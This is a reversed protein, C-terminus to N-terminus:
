NGIGVTPQYTVIVDVFRRSNTGGTDGWLYQGNVPPTGFDKAPQPVIEIRSYNNDATKVYVIESSGDHTASTIDYYNRTASVQSSFDANLSHMALGGKIIVGSTSFRTERTSGTIMSGTVTPAILSISPLPLTNDTALVMDVSTAAAANGVSMTMPTPGLVLGSFHGGTLDATEYVRLVASGVAPKWAISTLSGPASSKVTVVTDSAPHHYFVRVTGSKYSSVGTIATATSTGQVSFQYTTGVTLGNVDQFSDYLTEPPTDTQTCSTFFAGALLLMVCASFFSLRLKMLKRIIHSLTFKKPLVYNM